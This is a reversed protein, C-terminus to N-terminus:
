RNFPSLRGPVGAGTITRGPVGAGTVTRGPVGAGSLARGPVGAGSLSRGPVGAGTAARAPLGGPMMKGPVGAGQVNKYGPVGAGSVKVKPNASADGACVLFLLALAISVLSARLM